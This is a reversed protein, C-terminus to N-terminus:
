STVEEFQKQFQAPNFIDRVPVPIGEYKKAYKRMAAPITKPDDYTAAGAATIDRLFDVDGDQYGLLRKAIQLHSTGTAAGAYEGIRALMCSPWGGPGHDERGRMVMGQTYLYTEPHREIHDAAKLIAEDINM